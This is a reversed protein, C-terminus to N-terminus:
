NSESEYSLIVPSLCPDGAGFGEERKEELEAWRRSFTLHVEWAGVPKWMIFYVLRLHFLCALTILQSKGGWRHSESFLHTKKKKIQKFLSAAQLSSEQAPWCTTVTTTCDKEWPDFNNLLVATNLVDNINMYQLASKFTLTLLEEEWGGRCKSIRSIYVDFYYVTLVDKHM